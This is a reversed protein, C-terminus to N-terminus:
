PSPYLPLQRRQLRAIQHAFVAAAWFRGSCARSGGLLQTDFAADPIKMQRSCALSSCVALLGSRCRTARGVAASRSTIGWAPVTAWLVTSPVTKRAGGLVLCSRTSTCSELCSVQKHNGLSTSDAVLSFIPGGAPKLRAVESMPVARSESLGGDQLCPLPVLTCWLVKIPGASFEQRM